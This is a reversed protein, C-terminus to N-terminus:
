PTLLRDGPILGSLVEVGDPLGSTRVPNGLEVPVTLTGGAERLHVFDMGFRTFIASRPAVVRPVPPLAVSVLVHRGIVRDSLGPLTVDVRLTGDRIDPYIRTVEGIGAVGAQPDDVPITQGPKIAALEREPVALRLVPPGLAVLAVTEGPMVVTGQTVPLSIVRGAMPARVEGEHMREALVAEEAKRMSLDAEAQSAGVQYQDRQLRSVAGTRTLPQARTLNLRAVALAAAAAAVSQRAAALQAALKPDTVTALVQGAGVRQGRAVNLATITGGTRVRAPAMDQGEITAGVPVKDSVPVSVVLYDGAQATLAPWALAVALSLM